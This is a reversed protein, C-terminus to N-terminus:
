GGMAGAVVAALALDPFGQGKRLAACPTHALWTSLGVLDDTTRGRDRAHELMFAFETMTGVVSRSATKAFGFSSMSAVESRVFEEPVGLAGLVAALSAPFRAGVTSAPALPVLVPLLTSENVFLAVQPKWLLANAYWNGLVTSPEGVADGVPHRVRDLLKKTAHITYM